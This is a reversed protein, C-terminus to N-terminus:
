KFELFPEISPYNTYTDKLNHILLLFFFAVEASFTKGLNVFYNIQSEKDRSVACNM